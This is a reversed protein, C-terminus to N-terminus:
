SFLVERVRQARTLNELRSGTRMWGTRLRPTMAGYCLRPRSRPCKGGRGRRLVGCRRWDGGCEEPFTAFFRYKGPPGDIVVQEDLVPLAFSPEPTTTTEAITVTETRDFVSVNPPGVIQFRVPYDGPALVDENALVAEVRVPGKCFVQVPEVFLCWRLPAFADFMADIVGPKLERFTSSLM